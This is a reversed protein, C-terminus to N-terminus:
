KFNDFDGGILFFFFFFFGKEPKGSNIFLCRRPYIGDSSSSSSSASGNIIITLHGRLFWKFLAGRKKEEEGQRHWNQNSIFLFFFSCTPKFKFFFPIYIIVPFLQTLEVCCGWIYLVINAWNRQARAIIHGRNNYTFSCCNWKTNLQSPIIWESVLLRSTTRWM